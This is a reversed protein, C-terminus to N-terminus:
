GHAPVEPTSRARRLAAAFFHVARLAVGRDTLWTCAVYVAAGSPALVCLRPLAALGSPLARRLLSVAAAMALAAILPVLAGRLQDRVRIGTARRVVLAMVPASAVERCLWIGAAWALGRGGFLLMASLMLTFDIAVVALANRPRGVAGLLTTGLVRPVMVVILLALASVYPVARAWGRGFLLEVVEPAVVAIGLFTPYLLLCALEIAARYSRELRERDNQLRSLVPLAVQSMAGASIAWLVDVARFALSLYGASEGGLEVGVLITFVRRVAFGVFLSGIAYVGFGLLERLEAGAWRLRPRTSAMAWIVLSGTFAVLVHQAVLAWMGVGWCVLSIGILSGTLRGVLSRLALPRFSLERRQEPVLTAAAAACPLALATWRLAHAAVDSHVLRGFWPALLACLAALTLSLGLTFTFAADYHRRTVHERQVLADHFLMSVVVGLLEIVSLVVSFLGFDTASLFRSYIILSAFSVVALGGNEVAGWLASRAARQTNM